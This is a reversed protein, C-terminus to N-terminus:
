ANELKSIRTELADNKNSLEQVAKVLLPVLKSQDIRQSKISGDDNVADKEGFVAEPVIDSVEHAFFGDVTIDADAKFNFRYPKLQKLRTLGDSILVQNEKLRYDSSTSFATASGSVDISGVIGNQNTFRAVSASSTYNYTGLYLISRGVSNPFFGAGGALTGSGADTGTPATIGNDSFFMVRGTSDIKMRQLISGAEPKTFFKLDGGSDDGGNSDSTVITSSIIAIAKGEAGSEESAQGSNNRNAWVLSGVSAGNTSTDGSIIINATTSGTSEHIDLTTGTAWSATIDTAFTSGISVNRSADIFVATNERQMLKFTGTGSGGYVLGANTDGFKIMTGASTTNDSKVGSNALYLSADGDLYNTDTNIVSSAIMRGASTIRLREASNVGFIFDKGTRSFIFDTSSDFGIDIVNARSSFNSDAEGIGIRGGNANSNGQVVLGYAQSATKQLVHLPAAFSGALNLDGSTDSTQIGVKGDYTITMRADSLDANDAGTGGELAFHLNGRAFADKGEYFIGGKSFSTSGNDGFQIGSFRGDADVDGRIALAAGNNITSVIDLPYAPSTTGIGVNGSNDLVFDTSGTTNLRIENWSSDGITIYGGSTRQLINSSGAVIADNASVLNINGDVSLATLTGVSTINTQAATALTGTIDGSATLGGNINVESSSIQLASATGDGDEVNRLTGDVGSSAIKLLLPYTESITKGKLTAM